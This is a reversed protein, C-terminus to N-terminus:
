TEGLGIFKVKEEGPIYLACSGDEAAGVTIVYRKRPELVIEKESSLNIQKSTNGDIELISPIHSHGRFLIRFNPVSGEIIYPLYEEIPRKTAAPWNFPASHAFCIDGIRIVYPLTELYNIGKGRTSNDKNGNLGWILSLENNGMLAKVKHNRLVSLAEELADPKLSDCIDGLHIITEAGIDKLIKIAQLMNRNNSHSDAILGIIGQMTSKYGLIVRKAVLTLM